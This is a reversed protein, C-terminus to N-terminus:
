SASTSLGPGSMRRCATAWCTTTLIATYGSPWRRTSKAGNRTPRRTAPDDGEVAGPPPSPHMVEAFRLARADPDVSMLAHMLTTGSRPEGSAFMPREIVEDALPYDKRDQFFRLRDTLLWQINRAAAQRGNDDMPISNIHAVALGFREVFGDDSWDSLGTAAMAEQLLEEADLEAM